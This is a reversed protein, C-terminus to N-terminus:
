HPTKKAGRINKKHIRTNKQLCIMLILSDNCRYMFFFLVFECLATIQVYM